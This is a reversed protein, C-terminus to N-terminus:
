IEDHIPWIWSWKSNQAGKWSSFDFNSIVTEDVLLGTFLVTVLFLHCLHWKFFVWKNQKELTEVKKTLNHNLETCAKVRPIAFSNM